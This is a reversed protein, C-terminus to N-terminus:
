DRSLSLKIKFFKIYNIKILFKLAGFVLFSVGAAGALTALFAFISFLFFSFFSGFSLLLFTILVNLIVLNHTLIQTPSDPSLSVLAAFTNSCNVPWVGTKEFPLQRIFKKRNCNKEPV